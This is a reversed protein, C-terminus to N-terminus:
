THGAGLEPGSEPGDAGPPESTPAFWGPNPPTGTRPHKEDWDADVKLLGCADLEAALRLKQMGDSPVGSSPPPDPLRLLLAAIQARALDGSTLAAAVADVGGQKCEVAVPFGYRKSLARGLDRADRRRWAGAADRALLAVGGVRLGEADCEIEGPRLRFCRAISSGDM